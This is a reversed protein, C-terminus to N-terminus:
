PTLNQVSTGVRRFFPTKTDHGYMIRRYDRNKINGFQDLVTGDRLMESQGCDEDSIEHEGCKIIDCYEFRRNPDTTYCWPGKPDNDPNRCFNHNSNKPRHRPVHPYDHSWIQCTRGRATKSVTGNYGNRGQEWCIDTLSTSVDPREPATKLCKPM